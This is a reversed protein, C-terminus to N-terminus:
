LQDSSRPCALLEIGVAVFVGISFETGLVISRVGVLSEIKELPKGATKSVAGRVVLVATPTFAESSVLLLFSVPLSTGLLM